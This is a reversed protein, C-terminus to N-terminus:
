LGTEPCTRGAVGPRMVQILARGPVGRGREDVRDCDSPGALRRRGRCRTPDLYRCCFGASGIRCGHSAALADIVASADPVYLSPAGSSAAPYLIEFPVVRQAAGSFLDSRSPDTAFGDVAGILFGQPPSLARMPLGAYAVIAVALGTTAILVLFGAVIRRM